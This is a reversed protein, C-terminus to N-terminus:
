GKNLVEIPNRNVTRWATLTVVVVAVASVMLFALAFVWWYMDTRYAFNSLWERVSYVAVPLAILFSLAVLTFYKKNILGIVSWVTAGNVRRLAIEREMYRVEFLVTALLGMLSVIISVTAFSSIQLAKLQEDKYESRMIDDILQVEMSSNDTEFYETTTARMYEAVDKLNYGPAVRVYISMNIIERSLGIALPEVEYQLPRYKFDRCFGVIPIRTDDICDGVNLSYLKRAQENCIYGGPIFEITTKTIIMAPLEDHELTRGEYIDLGMVQPFDSSVQMMVINARDTRRTGKDENSEGIIAVNWKEPSHSIIDADGLAAAVIDPHECLKECLEAHDGVGSSANPTAVLVSEKDFGVNAGLMFSNQLRIFLAVIILVFSIVFQMIILTLRFRTGGKNRAYNGNLALAPTFSTVYFAPYLAVIVAFLLAICLIVSVVKWNEFLSLHATFLTSLESRVTISVILLAIAVSILVMIISEIVYIVRMQLVSAGMIKHTNVSRIRCPILSLFFNLYNVFAIALLVVATAILAITGTLSGKQLAKVEAGYFHSDTLPMARMEVGAEPSEAAIKENMARSLEEATYGPTLKAYSVYYNKYKNSRYFDSFKGMSVIVDLAAFDSNKKFDKYIAVVTMVMNHFFAEHLGMTTKELTSGVKLNYRKAFSESILVNEDRLLNDVSGEVIEFPLIEFVDDSAFSISLPINADGVTYRNSQENINLVGLSEVGVIDSVADLFNESSLAEWKEPEQKIHGRMEIRVIREVDEIEKNYSLEYYVQVTIMYAVAIAVGLGAINLAVVLPYSRLTILFNRLINRM